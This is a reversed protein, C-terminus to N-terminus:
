GPLACGVPGAATLLYTPLYTLLNGLYLAGLLVQPLLYTLLYSSRYRHCLRPVYVICTCLAHVCHMCAESQAHVYFLVRM